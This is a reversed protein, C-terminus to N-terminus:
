LASVQLPRTRIATRILTMQGGHGSCIGEIAARQTRNPRLVYFAPGAGSLGFTLGDISGLCEVLAWLQPSIQLLPRLFANHLDENAPLGNASMAAAVRKARQDETYDDPTLASYLTRTKAPIALGPVILLMEVSPLRVPSLRDGVGEAVAAPTGMFFPVDSGVVAAIEKLHEEPLPYGLLANAALLAAAANSSAGGLGAAAPIRKVLRWGLSPAGPVAARYTDLAKSVLNAQAPVDDIDHGEGGRTVTLEDALEIMTMLTCIDHYGDGRKGTIELGLNVKAPSSISAHRRWRV